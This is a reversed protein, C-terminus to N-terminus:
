HPTTTPEFRFIAEIKRWLQEGAIFIAAVFTIDCALAIVKRYEIWGVGFTPFYFLVINMVPGAVVMLLLGMYYSLRTSHRSPKLKLLHRVFWSRIQQLREKGLLCLAVITAVEPIGFIMAGSLLAKKSSCIEMSSILPILLPSSLALLLAVMGLSVRLYALVSRFLVGFDLKM